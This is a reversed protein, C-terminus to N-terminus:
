LKVKKLLLFELNSCTEDMIKQAKQHNGNERAAVIKKYDRECKRLIYTDPIPIPLEKVLSIPITITGVGRALRRIEKQMIKTQLWLALYFPSLREDKVRLIYIWDDCIGKDSEKTVVAARGICGVGVRVFVIDGIETHAKKNDM